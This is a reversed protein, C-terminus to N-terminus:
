PLRALVAKAVAVHVEKTDRGDPLAGSVVYFLHHPTRVYVTDYEDSRAEAGDGVDIPEDAGVELRVYEWMGPLDVPSGDTYGHTFRAEVYSGGTRAWTVGFWEDDFQAYMNDLTLDIIGAMEAATVISMPDVGAREVAADWGSPADSAASDAGAADASTAEAAETASAAGESSDGVLDKLEDVIGTEEVKKTIDGVAKAIKDFFGAM